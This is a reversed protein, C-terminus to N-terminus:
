EGVKMEEIMEMLGYVEDEGDGDHEVKLAIDKLPLSDVEGIENSCCFLFKWSKRGILRCMKERDGCGALINIM